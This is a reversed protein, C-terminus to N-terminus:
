RQTASRESTRKLGQLLEAAVTRMRQRLVLRNMLAYAPNRPTYYTDIRVTTREAPGSAPRPDLTLTFGYDALMRNFGVTDDVVVYGARCGPVFEVCRETISGERGGFNVTCRRTMGVGEANGEAVQAGAVYTVNKVVSAWQPLLTSDALVDWIAAPATAIEVTRTLQHKGNMM